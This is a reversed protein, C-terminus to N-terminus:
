VDPVVPLGLPTISDCLFRTDIVNNTFKLITDKDGNFMVNYMYPIDLSLALCRSDKRCIHRLEHDHAITVM